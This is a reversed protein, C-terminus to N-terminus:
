AKCIHKAVPSFKFIRSLIFSELVSIHVASIMVAQAAEELRLLLEDLARLMLLGLLLAITEDGVLWASARTESPSPRTENM